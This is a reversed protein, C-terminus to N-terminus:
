WCWGVGFGGGCVFFLLLRCGGGFCVRGACIGVAAFGCFGVCLFGCAFRRGFLRGFGHLSSQRFVRIFFLLRCGSNFGFRVVGNRFIYSLAFGFFGGSFFRRLSFGFFGHLGSQGFGFRGFGNRFHRRLYLGFFFLRQVPRRPQHASQVFRAVVHGFRQRAHEAAAFDVFIQIFLQFGHQQGAVHADFRGLMQHLFHAFAHRQAAQFVAFLQALRQFFRNVIQEFRQFFRQDQGFVALREDDHHGANVARAFGRGDALQGFIELFLAFAHHQSRAIGETGGRAFLQLFPALAVAHHHNRLFFAIRGGHAEIGHFRRFRAFNIHHQRVRGAAQGRLQM